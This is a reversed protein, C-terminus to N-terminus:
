WLSMVRNARVMSMDISTHNIALLVADRDSRAVKHYVHLNKIEAWDTVLVGRFDLQDRLLKRLLKNSAVVPVDNVEHYGEMVTLAGAEVAARFPPVYYRTAAVGLPPIDISM